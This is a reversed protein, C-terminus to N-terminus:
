SWGGELFWSGDWQDWNALGSGIYIEFFFFFFTFGITWFWISFSIFFSSSFTLPLVSLSLRSLSLSYLTTCLSVLLCSLSMKGDSVGHHPWWELSVWRASWTAMMHFGDRLGMGTGILQQLGFRGSVLAAMSVRFRDQQRNSSRGLRVENSWGECNM